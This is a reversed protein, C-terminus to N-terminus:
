SALHLSTINGVLLASLAVFTNLYIHSADQFVSQDLYRDVPAASELEIIDLRLAKLDNSESDDM